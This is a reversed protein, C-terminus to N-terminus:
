RYDRGGLKVQVSANLRIEGWGGNGAKVMSADNLDPDM